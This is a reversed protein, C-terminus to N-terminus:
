LQHQVSDATESTGSSVQQMAVGTKKSASGLKELEGNIEEMGDKIESSLESISHLVKETESQAESVTDIKQKANQYSTLATYYSYVAMLIVVGIQLLADDISRYGLGGTSAGIMVHLLNEIIVGVNILMTYRADNYISVVLIMPFVFTFVLQNSTTFLVITYFLAYGIAVLHKIALTEHDRLWFFQEAIVPLVGIVVVIMFSVMSRKGTWTELFILAIVVVINILHGAKATRNNRELETVARDREM